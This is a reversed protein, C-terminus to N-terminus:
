DSDEDLDDCQIKIARCLEITFRDVERTTNNDGFSIRIVGRKIVPVAGISTLVHSAKTDSTSCASGVSVVFGKTDLYKKLDNNCFPRGRNKCISLLVTNPLIFGRKEEPPGLSVIEIDKKEQEQDNYAYKDFDNFEFHRGMRELLRVRLKYLKENKEKRKIFANKLAVMMSAIGAINETGGRLGYQQTGNIEGTLGYGDVLTNSVILLGVGKPGYFKHASASLADINDRKINIKYKGFIQVCDSHLPVHHKHAIEGIERINNIVPVENNAYMITILCTNPKIEKEVDGPRINGFITPQVYTADVDGSESLDKICKMTSPHEMASLIIHPRMDSGREALKKKYAKVCSRIILCNSETGGSTFVAMHTASSVGCHALITDKAREFVKRAPKSIKSDTSANYCSLWKMVEKKAPESMLTTGNNDFYVTTNCSKSAPKKSM